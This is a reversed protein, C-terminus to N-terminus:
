LSSKVIAQNSSAWETWSGDYVSINEHGAEFAALAIICATIGSGCTFILQQKQSIITKFIAKLLDSDKMYIGDLVQQFPLCVAGDMHGGSVEKRPEPSTGDFREQTRADIVRYAPNKLFGKVQNMDSVWGSNFKSTFNGKSFLQHSDVIESLFGNAKWAPFGGNLVFVNEHGMTKFMWWVRPSSYIGIQDYIVLTDSENIGLKQAAKQFYEANPLMQPLGSEPDSFDKNIDLVRANPIGFGSELSENTGVPKLKAEIVVVSVINEKLWIANVLQSKPHRDQM